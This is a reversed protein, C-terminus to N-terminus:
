SIIIVLHICCNRKLACHLLTVPNEYSINSRPILSRTTVNTWIIVSNISNVKPIKITMEPMYLRVASRCQLFEGHSQIVNWLDCVATHVVSLTYRLFFCCSLFVFHCYLVCYWLNSQAIFVVLPVFCYVCLLVNCYIGCQHLRQHQLICPM